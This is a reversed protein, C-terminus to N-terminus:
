ASTVVTSRLKGGGQEDTHPAFGRRARSACEAPGFSTEKVLVRPEVEFDSHLSYYAGKPAGRHLVPQQM